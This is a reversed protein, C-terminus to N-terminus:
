NQAMTQLIWKIYYSVRIYVDPYYARDACGSGFSTIGALIWPGNKFLRCQLPGGSDGKRVFFHISIYMILSLTNLNLSSIIQFYTSRMEVYRYLNWGEWQCKGRMFTWQTNECSKWLRGSMQLLFCNFISLLFNQSIFFPLLPYRDLARTM